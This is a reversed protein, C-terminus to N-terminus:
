KRFLMFFGCVPKKDTMAEGSTRQIVYYYTGSSAQSGSSMIGDWIISTSESKYIMAGASTFVQFSYTTRGNTQVQLFDNTGDGNPSFAKPVHLKESVYFSQTLTDICGNESVTLKITNFGESLFTLISTDRIGGENPSNHTAYNSGNLDWVYKYVYANNPIKGSRFIYTLNAIAFTDAITFYANPHPRVTINDTHIYNKGPAHMTLKISQTGAKKFKITYSRTDLINIISDNIQDPLVNGFNWEYTVTKGADNSTNTFIVSLGDCGETEAKTFSATQGFINVTGLLLIFIVIINRLQAM